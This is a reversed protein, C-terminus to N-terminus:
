QRRSRARSASWWSFATTAKQGFAAAAKRQFPLPSWRGLLAFAVQLVEFM